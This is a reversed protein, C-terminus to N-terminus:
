SRSGSVTGAPPRDAIDDWPTSLLRLFRAANDGMLKRTAPEGLVERWAIVHDTTDPFMCEPHPFDSEYMLVHDGLIEIVAELGRLQGAEADAM